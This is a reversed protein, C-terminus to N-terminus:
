WIKCDGATGFKWHDLLEKELNRYSVNFTWELGASSVLSHWLLRREGVLSRGPNQLHLEERISQFHNCSDHNGSILQVHFPGVLCTLRWLRTRRSKFERLLSVNIEVGDRVWLRGFSSVKSMLLQPSNFCIILYPSPSLSIIWSDGPKGDEERIIHKLAPIIKRDRGERIIHKLEGCNSVDLTELKPLSQTLAPTFIFTLKDLSNLDLLVLSQLSVHRTPGKWICFKKGSWTSRRCSWHQLNVAEDPPIPHWIIIVLKRPNM